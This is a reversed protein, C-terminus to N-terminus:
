NIEEETFAEIFRAYGFVFEETTQSMGLAGVEKCQFHHLYHYHYLSMNVIETVKNRPYDNDFYIFVMNIFPLKIHARNLKIRIDGNAYDKHYDLFCRAFEARELRNLRFFMAALYNGNETQILFEKVLKDIFYSEKEYNNKKSSVKSALFKDWEGDLKLFMADIQQHNWDKPFKYGHLLYRAIIDTEAGSVITLKKKANIRASEIDKWANIKDNTSIDYESRPFIFASTGNFLNCRAILYATFDPLTNLEQISTHWATADM